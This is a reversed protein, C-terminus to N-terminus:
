QNAGANKKQELAQAHQRAENAWDGSADLRLYSQWDAEAEAYMGLREHVLARNFLAVTSGAESRLALTLNELAASWDQPQGDREAKQAYAGGLEARLSANDPQAELARTLTSIAEEPQFELLEARAKWRLTEVNTGDRRVATLIRGEADALEAPKDLPSQGARVARYIEAPRGGGPMRFVSPRRESYATALLTEVPRSAESKWWLGGAVLALAAAAASQWVWAARRPREIMVATRPTLKEVLARRPEDGLGPADESDQGADEQGASGHLAESAMRLVQGCVECGGVHALIERSRADALLGAAVLALEQSSPCTQNV